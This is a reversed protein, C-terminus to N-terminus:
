FGPVRLFQGIRTVLNSVTDLEGKLPALGLLVPPTAQSYASLLHGLMQVSSNLEDKVFFRFNFTESAFSAFAQGCDAGARIAVEATFPPGIWGGAPLDLIILYFGPLGLSRAPGPVRVIIPDGNEDTGQTEQSFFFAPTQIDGGNTLAVQVQAEMLGAVPAGSSDSVSIGVNLQGPAFGRGGQVSDESALIVASVNLNAV